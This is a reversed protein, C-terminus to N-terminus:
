AMKLPALAPLTPICSSYRLGLSSAQRIGALTQNAVTADALVGGAHMVGTVAPLAGALVAEVDCAFGADAKTLTVAATQHVSM